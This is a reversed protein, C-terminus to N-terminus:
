VGDANFTKSFKFRRSASRALFIDAIHRRTSAYDLESRKNDEM